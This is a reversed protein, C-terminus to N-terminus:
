SQRSAAAFIRAKQARQSWIDYANPCKAGPYQFKARTGQESATREGYSAASMGPAHQERAVLPFLSIRWVPVTFNKLVVLPKPKMVGSPADFSTKTWTLASCDDPM